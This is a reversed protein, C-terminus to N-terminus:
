TEGHNPALNSAAGTAESLGTPSLNMSICNFGGDLCYCYPGYMDFPLYRSLSTGCQCYQIKQTVGLRRVPFQVFRIELAWQGFTANLGAFGHRFIESGIRDVDVAYKTRCRLSGSFRKFQYFFRQAIRFYGVLLFEIKHIGGIEHFKDRAKGIRSVRDHDYTV